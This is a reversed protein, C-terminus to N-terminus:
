WTIALVCAIAMLALLASFTFEGNDKAEIYAGTSFIIALIAIVVKGVTV